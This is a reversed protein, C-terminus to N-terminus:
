VLSTVVFREGVQLDGAGNRLMFEHRGCVCAGIGTAAYGASFKNDAHDLAALGTCTSMQIGHTLSQVIHLLPTRVAPQNKYKKLQEKYPGDKVWYALGDNMIPDKKEDSIAYRKVRFCADM